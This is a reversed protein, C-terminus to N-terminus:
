LPDILIWEEYLIFLSCAWDQGHVVVPYVFPERMNLVTEVFPAGFHYTMHQRMVEKEILYVRFLFPNPFSLRPVPNRPMM